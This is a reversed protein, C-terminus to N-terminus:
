SMQGTGYLAAGPSRRFDMEITLANKRRNDSIFWNGLSGVIRVTSDTSM